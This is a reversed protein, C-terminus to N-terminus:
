DICIQVFRRGQLTLQLLKIVVISLGVGYKISADKTKFQSLLLTTDSISYTHEYHQKTMFTAFM